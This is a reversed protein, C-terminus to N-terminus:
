EINRGEYKICRGNSVFFRHHTKRENRITQEGVPLAIRQMVAGIAFLLAVTSPDLVVSNNKGSLTLFVCWGNNENKM